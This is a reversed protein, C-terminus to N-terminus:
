QVSSSQIHSSREGSATLANYLVILKVLSMHHPSFKSVEPSLVQMHSVIVANCILPPFLCKVELQSSNHAM